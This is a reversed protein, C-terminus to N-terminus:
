DELIDKPRHWRNAQISQRREMEAFRRRLTLDRRHARAESTTDENRYRNWEADPDLARGPERRYLALYDPCTM